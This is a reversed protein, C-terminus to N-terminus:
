TVGPPPTNNCYNVPFLFCDPNVKLIRGMKMGVDPKKCM